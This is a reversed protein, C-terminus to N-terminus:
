SPTLVRQKKEPSEIVEIGQHFTKPRMISGTITSQTHFTGNRLKAPARLALRPNQLGLNLPIPKHDLKMENPIEVTEGVGLGSYTTDAPPKNTPQTTNPLCYMGFSSDSSADDVDDEVDFNEGHPPWSSQDDTAAEIIRRTFVAECNKCGCTPTPCRMFTDLAEKEAEPLTDVAAKVMALASFLMPVDM